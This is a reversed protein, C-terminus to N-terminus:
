PRDPFLTATREAFTASANPERLSGRSDRLVEALRTDWQVQDVFDKRARPDSDLREALREKEAQSLEGRLHRDILEHWDNAESM